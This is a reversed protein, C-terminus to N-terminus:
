QMAGGLRPRRLGNVTRQQAAAIIAPAAQLIGQEVQARVAAPDASGRADVNVTVGGGSGMAMNKNPIITGSGGPIFLEPGKEGVLYPQQAGVYGGIARPKFVSDFNKELNTVDGGFSAGGSTGIGLGSLTKTVFGVIQQVVYLQWLQDIVSNIIGRMADKWSTAGTIMGKFADSVTQGISKFSEQLAAQPVDWDKAIKDTNETSIYGLEKATKAARDISNRSFVDELDEMRKNSFETSNILMTRYDLYEKVYEGNSMADWRATAEAVKKAERMAETMRSKKSGGTRSAADIAEQAARYASVAGNVQAEYDQKSIKNEARLNQLRNLTQYYKESAAAGADMGAALAYSQATARRSVIQFGDIQAQLTSILRDQEAIADNQLRLAFAGQELDRGTYPESAKIRMRQVRLKFLEAKALNMAQQAANADSDAKAATANAAQIATRAVEKNAKNLLETVMQLDEASMKAYDFSDSLSTIASKAKKATDETFLFKDALFGLAMVGIQLATGWPGMLFAGVAGLKGEMMSMAYGMQGLQQNFAQIPSAGTSISTALDNFQMGLQQTGQRNQRLQKAQADLANNYRTGNRVVADSSAALGANATKLRETEKQLAGVTNILKAMQEQGTVHAAVLFDLTNQQAM